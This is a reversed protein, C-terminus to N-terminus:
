SLSIASTLFGVGLPTEYALPQVRFTREGFTTYMLAAPAWLTEQSRARLSPDLNVLGERSTTSLAARVQQDFVKAPTAQGPEHHALTGAALVVAREAAHELHERLIAGLRNLEELTPNPPVQLCALPVQALATGLCVAPVAFTFPLRPPAILPLPFSTACSEKLRHTFGVALRREGRTVLDGYESFEYSLTPAQLLAYGSGLATTATSAAAVLLVDPAARALVAALEALAATTKKVQARAAKALGPLLLPSCPLIGAAVLPM